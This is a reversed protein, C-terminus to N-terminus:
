SNPQQIVTHLASLFQKVTDSPAEAHLLGFPISHEWEVPIVKLLPHVNGWAPVALLLADSNECRNFINMDYFDFKGSIVDDGVNCYVRQEKFQNEGEESKELIYHVSTGLLSYIRESVDETIEAQHRKYLIIEKPDKLLTTASYTGHNDYDDLKVANVIQEPM